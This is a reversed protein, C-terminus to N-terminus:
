RTSMYTSRLYIDLVYYIYTSRVIYILLVYTLFVFFFVSCFAFHFVVFFSLCKVQRNQNMQVNVDSRRRRTEASLSKLGSMEENIGM